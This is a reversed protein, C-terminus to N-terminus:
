RRGGRGPWTLPARLVSGACLLQWSSGDLLTAATVVVRYTRCTNQPGLTVKTGQVNVVIISPNRAARDFADRWRRRRSRRQWCGWRVRWGCRGRIRRRIGWVRGEGAGGWGRRRRWRWRRRRHRGGGGNGSRSPMDSAHHAVCCTRALMGGPVYGISTTSLPLAAIKQADRNGHKQVGAGSASRTGKAQYSEMTQPM